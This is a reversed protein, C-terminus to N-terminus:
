PIEANNDEPSALTVVRTGLLNTLRSLKESSEPLLVIYPEDSSVATSIAMEDLAPRETGMNTSETVNENGSTREISRSQNSNTSHPRYRSNATEYLKFLNRIFQSLESDDSANKTVYEIPVFFEITPYSHPHIDLNGDLSEFFSKTLYREDDHAVIYEDIYDITSASIALSLPQSQRYRIESSGGDYYGIIDNQQVWMELLKEPDKGIQGDLSEPGRPDRTSEQVGEIADLIEHRTSYEIGIKEKVEEEFNKEQKPDGSVGALNFISFSPIELIRCISRLHDDGSVLYADNDWTYQLVYMDAIDGLNVDGAVSKPPNEAFFSIMGLRDLIRLMQLNSIGQEVTNASPGDRDKHKNIEYLTVWPIHITTDYFFENPLFTHLISSPEDNVVDHYISNTDFVWDDADLPERQPVTKSQHSLSVDFYDELITNLAETVEKLRDVGGPYDWKLYEEGVRLSLTVKDLPIVITNGDGSIRVPIPATQREGQIRRRSLDTFKPNAEEIAEMVAEVDFLSEDEPGSQPEDPTYSHTVGSEIKLSESTVRIVSSTDSLTTPGVLTRFGPITYNWDSQFNGLNLIRNKAQEITEDTLKENYVAFYVSDPEEIPETYRTVHSLEPGDNLFYDIFDGEELKFLPTDILQGVRREDTLIELIGAGVIIDIGDFQDILQENLTQLLEALTSEEEIDLHGDSNSPFRQFRPSQESIDGITRYLGFLRARLERSDYDGLDDVPDSVNGHTQVKNGGIEFTLEVVDGEELLLSERLSSSMQVKYPDSFSVAYSNVSQTSLDNIESEYQSSVRRVYSNSADVKRATNEFNQTEGRAIEHIIRLQLDSYDSVENTMQYEVMVVGEGILGRPRFQAPTGRM